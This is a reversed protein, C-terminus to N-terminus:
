FFLQPQLLYLSFFGLCFFFGVLQFFFFFFVDDISDTRDRGKILAQVLNGRESEDMTTQLELCRSQLLAFVGRLRHARCLPRSLCEVSYKFPSHSLVDDPQCKLISPATTLSSSSSQFPFLKKASSDGSGSKNSKNSSNLKNNSRSLKSTKQNPKLPSSSITSFQPSTTTSHSRPSLLSLGDKDKKKKQKGLMPSPSVTPSIITNAGGSSSRKKTEGRVSNKALKNMKSNTITKAVHSKGRGSHPSASTTEQQLLQRQQQAKNNSENENPQSTERLLNPSERTSSTTVAFIASNASTNPAQNTNSVFGNSVLPKAAVYEEFFVSSATDPDLAFYQSAAADLNTTTTAGFNNVAILPEHARSATVLRSASNAGGGPSMSILAPSSVVNPLSEAALPPLKKSDADSMMPAFFNPMVKKEEDTTASEREIKTGNQEGATEPMKTSAKTTQSIAGIGSVSASAIEVASMESASRIKGSRPSIRGERMASMVDEENSEPNNGSRENAAKENARGSAWQEALQAVITEYFSDDDQFQDQFAEWYSLADRYVSAPLPVNSLTPFSDTAAGDFEEELLRMPRSVGAALVHTNSNESKKKEYEESRNSADSVRRHTNTKFHFEASNSMSAEIGSCYLKNSNFLSSQDISMTYSLSTSLTSSPELEPCPSSLSRLLQKKPPQFQRTMHNYNYNNSMRAHQQQQQQQQNQASVGKAVVATRPRREEEQSYSCLPLSSLMARFKEEDAFGGVESSMLWVVEEDEEEDDDL